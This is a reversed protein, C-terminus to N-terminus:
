VEIEGYIYYLYYYRYGDWIMFNLYFEVYIVISIVKIYLDYKSEVLCCFGKFVDKYLFM